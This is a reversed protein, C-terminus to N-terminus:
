LKRQGCSYVMYRESDLIRRTFIRILEKMASPSIASPKQLCRLDLHSPEYHATENPDVSNSMENKLKVYLLKGISLKNFFCCVFLFLLFVVVVFLCFVFLCVFVFLCFLVFVVFFLVFLCFFLLM